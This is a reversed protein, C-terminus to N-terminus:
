HKRFPLGFRELLAHAEEDTRASTGITINLGKIREVKDYDVEPFIIQERVGLNYNGRGDFSKPSAGRFDRVRPRAVQLLRELFHYARPGRLTVRVGIPMGERVKFSAVSKRARTVVPKQGSIVTMQEVGADILTPNQIAEGLGMNLVVKTLRPVQMPNAYQFRGMLTPVIERKYTELFKSM